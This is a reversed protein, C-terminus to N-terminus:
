EQGSCDVVDVEWTEINVYTQYGDVDAHLKWPLLSM